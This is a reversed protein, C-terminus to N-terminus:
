SIALKKLARKMYRFYRMCKICIIKKNIDIVCPMITPIVILLETLKTISIQIFGRHTAIIGYQVDIVVWEIFKFILMMNYLQYPLAQHRELPVNVLTIQTNLLVKLTRGLTIDNLKNIDKIFPLKDMNPLQICKGQNCADWVQLMYKLAPLKFLTNNKTINVHHLYEYKSLEIEIVVSIKHKYNEYFSHNLRMLTVLSEMDNVKMHTVFVHVPITEM